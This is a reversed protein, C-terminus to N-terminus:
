DPMLVPEFGASDIKKFFPHRCVMGKIGMHTAWAFELLAKKNDEWEQPLSSM